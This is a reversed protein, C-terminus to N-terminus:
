RGNTKEEHYDSAACKEVIVRKMLEFCSLAPGGSYLHMKESFLAMRQIKIGNYPCGGGGVWQDFTSPDPHNAADLRMLEVCLLDSVEGWYALLLSSPAPLNAGSLDAGSLTAGSLDAGSLTANILTAGRLTARRLTAGRLDANILNAGRLNAGSLDAGRLNAGSLDANILNAGSLDANVLNRKGGGYRKLIEERDM